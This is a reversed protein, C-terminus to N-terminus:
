SRLPSLRRPENSEFRAAILLTIDDFSPADGVFTDIQTLIAQEIQEASRGNRIEDEVLEILRQEGFEEELGNQAETVGDTYMVLVDGEDFNISNRKWQMGEFMGLPIGTNGLAQVATHPSFLYAPNHGANAYTMTHNVTDLIGLFVTVFQDSKTDILIRENALQLAIEPRDPHEMAYTRILTRSLAMYLAAGTGKDAVDAVIIALRGNDLEVFDYFDGSTQRAAVLKATVAWGAPQPVSDPLFSTQIQGAIELERSMRVNEVTQSYAKLRQIASAIQGALSQIAPLLEYVDGFDERKAVYIGGLVTQEETKIPIVLGKRYIRGFVEDPLRIKNMEYPPNHSGNAVWQMAEDLGPVHDQNSYILENDRWIATMSRSFMGPLHRQLLAPLTDQEIPSNLIAHSLEELAALERSRLHSKAISNSLRYALLGAGYSGLMLFLFIGVGHETFIGAALIGFPTAINSMNISIFLFLLFQGTTQQIDQEYARMVNSVRIGYPILFTTQFLLTVFFAILAPWIAQWSLDSIPIAGGLWLYVTIAILSSITLVATQQLSNSLKAWRLDLDIERWFEWANDLLMVLLFTWIVTPGLLLIGSFQIYPGLNGSASASAAKTLPLELQFSARNFLFLLVTFLLFLPWNAELITIDSALILWILGLIAFPATVISVSMDLLSGARLIGSRENIEPRIKLAISDIWDEKM